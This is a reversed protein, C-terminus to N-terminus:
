VGDQWDPLSKRLSCVNTSARLADLVCDLPDSLVSNFTKEGPLEASFALSVNPPAFVTKIESTNGRPDLAHWGSGDLNVFNFGHLCFNRDGMAIRQYGFGAPIQNARLLAALLHSKAYCIGTGNKLVESASCTVCSAAVDFSHSIEDRVWHFCAAITELRDRKVALKAAQRMVSPEDWDIAETSRLYEQM